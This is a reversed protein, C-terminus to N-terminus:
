NSGDDQFVGMNGKEVKQTKILKGRVAWRKKGGDACTILTIIPKKTDETLYVATPPVVKKWHVKYSYVTKLNTLYVMDGKKIREVPEFLIGKETMYHGALAYNGHGMKQGQRMTGGGTTMAYDSLGKMVPLTMKVKPVSIIGIAGSTSTKEKKLKDISTIEKVKKFDFDGKKKENKKIKKVTLSKVAHDSDNKIKVNGAESSCLAVGGFILFLVAVLNSLGNVIPVKKM